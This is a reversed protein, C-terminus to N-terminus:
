NATRSRDLSRLRKKDLRCVLWAGGVSAAPVCVLPGLFPVLFLLGATTGFAIVATAHDGVFALRQRLSWERRSFPIDLLSVATAFGAAIAFLAGGVFPVLQLPFALVLVVGAFISAKVSTWVTALNRLVLAKFGSEGRAADWTARPDAGFWRRELRAHVVDLFPGCLAEYVISFTWLAVLFAVVFALAYGGLSVIWWMAASQIVTQLADAFWRPEFALEAEGQTRLATIWGDVLEFLGFSVLAFITTTVLFPPVLWRKTGRTSGLFYLGRVLAQAGAALEASAGARPAVLSVETLRACHTCEADPAPYGCRPCPLPNM